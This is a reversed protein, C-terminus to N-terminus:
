LYRTSSSYALLLCVYQTSCQQDMNQTSYYNSGVNWLILACLKTVNEATHLSHLPFLAIWIRMQIIVHCTHDAIVIFISSQSEITIKIFM